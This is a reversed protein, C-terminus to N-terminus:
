LYLQIRSPFKFFLTITIHLRYQTFIMPQFKLIPFFVNRKFYILPKNPYRKNNFASFQFYQLLISKLHIFLVKPSLKLKVNANKRVQPNWSYHVPGLFFFFLWVSERETKLAIWVWGVNSLKVLKQKSLNVHCTLVKM